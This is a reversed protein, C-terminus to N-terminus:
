RSTPPHVSVANELLNALRRGLDVCTM